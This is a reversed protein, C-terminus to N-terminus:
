PGSPRTLAATAPSPAGAGRVKGRPSASLLMGHGDADEGLAGQRATLREPKPEEDGRPHDAEEEEREARREGGRREAERVVPKAAKRRPHTQGVVSGEPVVVDEPLRQPDGPVVRQEADREPDDERQEERQDEVLPHRRQADEAREVEQRRDHR